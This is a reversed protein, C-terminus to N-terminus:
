LRNMSRYTSPNAGYMKKFASAFKSSNAYGVQSAIEVIKKDSELLLERAKQLRLKKLTFYMSDGYIMKFSSKLDTINVGVADAIEAITTHKSLDETLMDYARNIKDILHIPLYNKASIEYDKESILYLLMEMVKIRLLQLKYKQPLVYFEKFIHDLSKKASAVICTQARVVKYVFDNLEEKSLGTFQHISDFAKDISIIVNIGKYPKKTFDCYEIDSNYGFLSVDGDSIFAIKKSNFRAEVKGSFCYNIEITDCNFKYNEKILRKLKIDSYTVEIGDFIKYSSMSGSGMEESIKYIKNYDNTKAKSAILKYINKNTELISM